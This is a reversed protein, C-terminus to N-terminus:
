FRIEFGRFRGTAPRVLVQANQIYPGMEAQLSDVFAQVEDPAGEVIMYVRGDPMNRVFGTVRHGAAIARATYRFGVGQVRGSYYIERQEAEKDAM